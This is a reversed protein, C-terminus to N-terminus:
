YVVSVLYSERSDVLKDGAKVIAARQRKWELVKARTLLDSQKELKRAIKAIQLSMGRDHQYRSTFTRFLLCQHHLWKERDLTPTNMSSSEDLILADDSFSDQGTPTKLFALPFRDLNHGAYEKLREDVQRFVNVSWRKTFEAGEAVPDQPLSSPPPSPRQDIQKLVDSLSGDPQYGTATPPQLRGDEVMQDITRRKHERRRHTSWENFPLLKAQSGCDACSCRRLARREQLTKHGTQGEIIILINTEPNFCCLASYTPLM